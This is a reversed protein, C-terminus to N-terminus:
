KMGRGAIFGGISGVCATIIPVSDAKLIWASFISIVALCIVAIHKENVEPLEFKNEM